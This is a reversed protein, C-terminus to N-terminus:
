KNMKPQWYAGKRINFWPGFDYKLQVQVSKTNPRMELEKEKLKVQAEILRSIYSNILGYVKLGNLNLLYTVGALKILDLM